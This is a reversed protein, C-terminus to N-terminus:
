RRAELYGDLDARTFRLGHGKAGHRPLQGAATLNHIHAVTSGIYAAAQASTYWHEQRLAALEERVVRRLLEEFGDIRLDM